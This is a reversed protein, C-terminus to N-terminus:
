TQIAELPLAEFTCGILVKHRGGTTYINKNNIFKNILILLNIYKTTFIVNIYIKRQWNKEVEVRILTDPVSVTETKESISGCSDNQCSYIHQDFSYLKLKNHKNIVSLGSLQDVNNQM